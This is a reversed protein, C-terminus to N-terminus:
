SLIKLRHLVTIRPTPQHLFLKETRDNENFATEIWVIIDKLSIANKIIPHFFSTIKYSFFIKAVNEDSIM